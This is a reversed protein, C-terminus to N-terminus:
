ARRTGPWESSWPRRLRARAASRRSRCPGSRSEQYAQGPMFGPRRGEGHDVGRVVLGAALQELPRAGEDGLDVGPHGPELGIGSEGADKGSRAGLEVLGEQEDEDTLEVGALAAEDVSEEAPRDQLLSDRRGRRADDEEAVALRWRAADSGVTDLDHHIGRLGQAREGDHVRRTGVRHQALVLREGAVEHGAGVEDEEERRGVPGVGLGLPGEELRQALPALLDDDHHVLGVEELRPVVDVADEGEDALV